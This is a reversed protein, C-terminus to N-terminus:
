PLRGLKWAPGLQAVQGHFVAWFGRVIRNLKSEATALHSALAPQFEPLISKEFGEWTDLMLRVTGHLHSPGDWPTDLGFRPDGVMRALSLHAVCKDIARMLSSPRARNQPAWGISACYFGGRLDPRDCDITPQLGLPNRHSFFEALTRIHTLTADQLLVSVPLTHRPQTMEWAGALMSVYEYTVHELGTKFDASTVQILM